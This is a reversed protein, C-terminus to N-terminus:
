RRLRLKFWEIREKKRGRRARVELYDDKLRLLFILILVLIANALITLFEVNVFWNQISLTTMRGFIMCFYVVCDKVFITSICLILSELVTETMHRSWIPLLCASIFYAVAYLLFVNAFFYDYFMGFLIAFLCSDIFDFKRITLVLASFGLNAIFMLETGMANNPFLTMLIGDILFCSAVFLAHVWM